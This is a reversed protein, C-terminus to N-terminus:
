TPGLPLSRPVLSKKYFSPEDDFIALFIDAGWQGRMAIGVQMAGAQADFIYFWNVKGNEWPESIMGVKGTGEDSYSIRM